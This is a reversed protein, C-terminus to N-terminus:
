RAAIWADVTPFQEVDLLMGVGFPADVISGVQMRGDAIRVVPYGADCSEYLDGHHQLVDKQVSQPFASLGAFYHHGNREVSTMGLTAAVALDQLLAVPGINVLDEVSMVLPRDRETDQRRRLELRCANIISKFVGKCNKHSTGDYGLELARPLSDLEADSEDIIIPPRDNWDSLGAVSAADLAIDRHLPQEVFLLRPLTDRLETRQFLADWYERFASLSRFLENGDVTYRYDDIGCDTVVNVFRRMRELDADTEGSIKIKFHRFGYREILGTLSQPLVDDVRDADPIEADTLEDLMGLTQRITLTRRPKEPLLDAPPHGELQSDIQGLQIGLSNARVAQAFTTKKARCFADILAREILSTGFHTLLSPLESARGWEDQLAYLSRWVEFVTPGTLGISAGIAHQIVALMEDIEDAFARDPNKTFWKPPLHDAAIGEVTAGDIEARVRVFAHPTETMTAIGYRFPVRTRLDLVLIDASVIEVSM